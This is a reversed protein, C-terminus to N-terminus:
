TDSVLKHSHIKNSDLYYFVNHAFEPLFENKLCQFMKSRNNTAQPIVTIFNTSREVTTGRFPYRM